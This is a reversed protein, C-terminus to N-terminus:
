ERCARGGNFDLTVPNKGPHLALPVQVYYAAEDEFEGIGLVIITTSRPIKLKDVVFRGEDNSRVHALAPTKRVASLLRDYLAFFKEADGKIMNPKQEELDRLIAM